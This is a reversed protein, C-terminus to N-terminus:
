FKIRNNKSIVRVRKSVKKLASIPIRKLQNSGLHLLELHHLKRFPHVKLTILFNGDLYLVKLFPLANFLQSNLKHLKNKSLILVELSKSKTLFGRKPITISNEALNLKKLNPSCSDLNKALRKIENRSLDAVKLHSFLKLFKTPFNKLRIDSALLTKILPIFNKIMDKYTVNVTTVDLCEALLSPRMIRSPELYLTNNQFCEEHYSGSIVLGIHTSLLIVCIYYLQAM